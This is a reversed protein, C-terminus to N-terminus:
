GDRAKYRVMRDIDTRKFGEQGNDHMNTKDPRRIDPREVCIWAKIDLIKTAHSQM